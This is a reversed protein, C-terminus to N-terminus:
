NQTRYARSRMEEMDNALEQYFSLASAKVKDIIPAMGATADICMVIDVCFVEDHRDMM